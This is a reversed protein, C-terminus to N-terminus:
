SREKVHEGPGQVECFEEPPTVSPRAGLQVPVSVGSRGPAPTLTIEQGVHLDLDEAASARDVAVSMLGYSDVVLGISGTPIHAYTAVRQATRDTRGGGVTVAEPWDALEDPDVNLQANGFRDIWLIEAAISGDEARESVPLVGPLLLGPDISTGLEHAPVGNCLHAAVPGFIDRGGFTPGPAPLHYDGNDLVFAGTAGGVMSVAPALLGNDPGVLYAEGGAVEIAVPRRETGVGPDVVALVVGPALYQVSRALALGGARVDHPEIAHTIDIVATAPSLTRVVSKVVGVFEDETGYDSLFSITRFRPQPSSERSSSNM